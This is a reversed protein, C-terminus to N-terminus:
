DEIRKLWAERWFLYCSRPCNRCCQGDCFVGELAVTDRLARLEGSWELIVREVRHAVRFRRGCYRAMEPSYGLGRHRQRADLTALIEPLLKVEVWDGPQLHLREAPPPIEEVAVAAPFSNPIPRGLMRLIRRHIQRVFFGLIQCVTQEGDHLDRGYQRFDWWPLRRAARVLETAQCCLREGATFSQPTLTSSQPSFSSPPSLIDPHPSAAPKLWAEKWLLLCCMRCDAHAAGSCRVNELLVTNNLRAVYYYHDLFIREARRYIRFRRGCFISMEPLFPLKEFKGEADLTARIEAESRVEVWDGRRFRHRRRHSEGRDAVPTAGLPIDM